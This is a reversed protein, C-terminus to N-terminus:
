LDRAIGVTSPKALNLPSLGQRCYKGGLGSAKVCSNFLIDACALKDEKVHEFCKMARTRGEERQRKQKTSLIEVNTESM